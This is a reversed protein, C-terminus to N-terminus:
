GRCCSWLGSPRRRSAHNTRSSSPITRGSRREPGQAEPQRYFYLRARISARGPPPETTFIIHHLCFDELSITDVCAIEDDGKGRRCLFFVSSRQRNRRGTQQQLRSPRFSSSAFTWRQATLFPRITGSFRPESVAIRSRSVTLM